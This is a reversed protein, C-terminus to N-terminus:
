CVVSGPKGDWIDCLWALYTRIPDFISRLMQTIRIIVMLIFKNACNHHFAIIFALINATITANRVLIRLRCEDHFYGLSPLVIEGCSYTSLLKIAYHPQYIVKCMFSM